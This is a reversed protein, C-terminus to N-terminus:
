TSTLLKSDRYTSKMASASRMEKLFTVTTTYTKGKTTKRTTTNARKTAARKKGKQAEAVYSFFCLCPVLLLFKLLYNKM